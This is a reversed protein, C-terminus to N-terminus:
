AIANQPHATDREKQASSCQVHVMLALVYTDDQNSVSIMGIDRLQRFSIHVFFAENGLEWSGLCFSPRSHDVCPNESTASALWIVRM